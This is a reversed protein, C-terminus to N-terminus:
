VVLILGSPRTCVRSMIGECRSDMGLDAFRQTTSSTKKLDVVRMVIKTYTKGYFEVKTLNIRLQFSYKKGNIDKDKESIRLDIGSLPVSSDTTEADRIIKSEFRAMLSVPFKEGDKLAGNIRYQVIM